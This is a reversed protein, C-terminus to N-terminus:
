KWVEAVDLAVECGPELEFRMQEVAKYAGDILEFAELTQTKYDAMLYYRVGHEQYIDFKINRDKFESSNSIIELVLVPPNEVIDGEPEGCVIMVDPRVVTEASVKWDIEFLVVCNCGPHINVANGFQLGARSAVKGHKFGPSPFLSYPLGGILEWDEKWNVYDAYTYRPIHQITM